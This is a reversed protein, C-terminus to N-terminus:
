RLGARLDAVVAPVPTPVPLAVPETATLLPGHAGVTYLTRAAYVPGGGDPALLVPGLGASGFAAALDLAVTRGAPVAVTVSRGTVTVVRLRGAAAPATLLVRSTGAFPPANDALVAPTTLPSAAPQWQLEWYGRDPRVQSWGAAVVPQDSDVVVAGAAGALVAALDIETTHGARLVFSQHGAPKFNGAHTVVRLGVTADRVGPNALDVVRPGPGDYFDPVVLHTAPATSAPLYDAGAPSVGSIRQDLITAAVTGSDAHVHLAVDPVDPAFGAVALSRAGHAPVTVASLSPASLPGSRGWAGLTLSAPTDSPNTLLVVDTFGVRGDAGAFWWDARPALCPASQLARGRGHPVLTDQMAAVTGAIPGRAALALPHGPTTARVTATPHLALTSARAGSVGLPTHTVTGAPPAARRDLAAAVDVVTMTTVNGAPGGTVYPCVLDAARVPASTAAAAPRPQRAPAVGASLGALAGLAVLGAVTPALRRLPGNM